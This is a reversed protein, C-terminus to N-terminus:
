PLTAITVVNSFGGTVSGNKAYIGLYYQTGPHLGPVSAVAQPTSAVSVISTLEVPSTGYHVEYSLAGPVPVFPLKIVRESASPLLALPAGLSVGEGLHLIRAVSPVGAADNLFLMYYGPPALNANPVARVNLGGTTPTFRLPVRRQEFDVSHTVSAMRMLVVSASTLPSPTAIFFDEDYHITEPASSIQPRPALSGDSAFLYPPSFIEFNKEIYGLTQCKGCIGGGGSLVRADPLLIATSHYQRTRQAAALLQWTGTAPNWREANLVPANLDVLPTGNWNGGTALVSGDPLVTMNHQRRGVVLDGTLTTQPRRDSYLFNIVRASRSSPGGGAVIVKGIDYLGFSGYTRKVGDGRKGVREWAGTGTADLYRLADTPGFNFARGGPSAHFWPYLPLSLVADTLPRLAGLSTFVEPTDYGGSTILMEGNALPTVSPYWRGGGMLAPSLTWTQTQDDFFHVTDLGALTHDKNGGAVLVTGDPLHALGSCFLNYGTTTDVRTFANTAPDWVAMRTTDQPGHYKAAPIDSISDWFLLRGSPLLSVHIPVVPADFLASWAGTTAPTLQAPERALVAPARMVGNSNTYGDFDRQLGANLDAFGAFGFDELRHAAIEKASASRGSPPDHAFATAAVVCALMTIAPM